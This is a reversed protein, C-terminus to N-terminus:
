AAAEMKAISDALRQILLAGIFDCTPQLIAYKGSFRVELWIQYPVSGALIMEAYFNQEPGFNVEAHLGARANGTRDTWPANNRMFTEAENKHYLFQGAIVRKVKRDHAAISEALKDIGTMTIKVAM